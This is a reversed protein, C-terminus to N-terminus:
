VFSKLVPARAAGTCQSCQFVAPSAVLLKNDAVIESLSRLVARPENMPPKRPARYVSTRM